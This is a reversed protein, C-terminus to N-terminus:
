DEDDTTFEDDEYEFISEIEDKDNVDQTDSDPTEGLVDPTIVVDEYAQPLQNGIFWSMELKGNVNTWGFDTPSMDNLMRTHASRWLSAIYRTRLVHQRLESQCPPLNCADYNRVNLSFPQSTDSVTYTKYFIAIRARNVDDIKKLGYLHCIFREITNFSEDINYDESGLDAFAKQFIPCNMVIDLPKKKGRRYFAPNYDCGTLAHLAPLAQSLLPGLKQSLTSVDIYRRANGVGLDMWIKVSAELHEMNALMIVVIDTDSTRITITSDERIQCVLFVIKTDAEEHDPCSLEHDINRTVKNDTVSYVYCLDHSLYITKNGIITAMEQDAWHDILFKVLAEKFKINKLDKAFVATRTQQPGSIYFDKDDVNGRLTHECDKISPTFYRDFVIAVRSASNNVLCQLIKKSLDGFSRPMQKFTHLFFFGDVIVFDLQHPPQEVEELKKELEQVLVSKVTKNISGDIHCLSLPVPTIPFCLVKEVDVKTDLSLALLRGFLDRQLKVEHVKQGIKMTKKKKKLSAFTLVQNKKLSKHFRESNINCETIFQDRLFTGSSVANLLSNAVEPTTAQGTSINYLQNKDISPSFPNITQQISHLFAEIQKHHKKMRDPHLDAAIDQHSNNLGTRTLVHSIIRTRAGHNRAWRQRASISNTLNVIGTLRRAAEGNITQELTLDVPIRSFPEVTRRIGFSGKAIEARLGPHTNDVHQLQNIYYVLWRSYNQQNYYFFLCVIKGLAYFYLDSDGVRISKIFLQYLNIFDIYMAYFQATKGHKGELTDATYQEYSQILHQTETHQVQPSIDKHQMFTTLCEIVSEQVTFHKKELFSEFHLQQLTLAMLSHLRKCRSYNKGAIFGAVSGNAILNCETMIHTLGCEEIFTGVAKFFAMEIHFAGMHIFINDFKPSEQAQICYSTRAIALDYTVQIFPAECERAIDQSLELTQLVTSHNTPSDNIPTLHSVNQVSSNDIFIKSHYGVWMPVHPIRYVHSLMWMIYLQKSMIVNEPAENLASIDLQNWTGIKLKKAYPRMDFTIEDFTRRKRKRQVTTTCESINDHTSENPTSNEIDSATPPVVPMTDENRVDQYIIGMTDHLTDKGNLTEVFRDFNDFAVATNLDPRRLIDEPCVYSSNATSFTLETELEELITYSCCHGYKSLLNIIKKSNCLSKVALGLTIHKSTKIKHSSTAYILDQGLSFIALDNNKRKNERAKRSLHDSVDGWLLTELFCTLLEPVNDCEGRILDEATCDDPLKTTTSNLIEERLKAAVSRINEKLAMTKFSDSYTLIHVSFPVLFQKKEAFIIKIRKHFTEMLKRQLHRDSFSTSSISESLLKCQEILLKQYEKKVYDFFLCEKNKVVYEELMECLMVYAINSARKKKVFDSVDGKSIDRLYQDKCCKHYPINSDASFSSIKELMEVDNHKTAASKLLDIIRFRNVVLPVERGHRKKRSRECIFCKVESLDDNSVPEHARVEDDSDDFDRDCNNSGGAEDTLTDAVQITTFSFPVNLESDEGSVEPVNACEAACEQQKQSESPIKISSKERCFVCNASM